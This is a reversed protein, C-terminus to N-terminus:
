RRPKAATWSSSRGRPTASASRTSVTDCVSIPLRGSRRKLRTSGLPGSASTSAVLGNAYDAFNKYNEDDSAGNDRGPFIVFIPAKAEDLAKAFDFTLARFARRKEADPELQNGVLTVSSVFLGRDRAMALAPAVKDHSQIHGGTDLEIADFGAAAAFDLVEELPRDNFTSTYFGVRM